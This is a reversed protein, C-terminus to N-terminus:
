HGLIHRIQKVTNRVRDLQDDKQSTAHVGWMSIVSEAVTLVNAVESGIEKADDLSISQDKLTQLLKLIRAFTREVAEVLLHERRHDITYLKYDAAYFDPIEELLHGIQQFAVTLQTWEPESLTSKTRAANIGMDLDKRAVYLDERMNHLATQFSIEHVDKLALDQRRSLLKSVFVALLILGSFSEIAAFIRSYGLPVVDGYGTGTATIVSYYVITWFGHISQLTYTTLQGNGPLLALGAYIATFLLINAIWICLIAAYSIDDLQKAFFSKRKLKQDM